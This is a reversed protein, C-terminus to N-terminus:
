KTNGKDKEEDELERIIKKISKKMKRHKIGDRSFIEKIKVSIEWRCNLYGIGLTLFFVGIVILALIILNLLIGM